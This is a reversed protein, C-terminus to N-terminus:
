KCLVIFTSLVPPHTKYETSQLPARVYQAVYERITEIRSHSPYPLSVTDFIFRWSLVFIMGVYSHDVKVFSCM